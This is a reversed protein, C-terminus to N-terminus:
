RPQANTKAQAELLAEAEVTSARATPQYDFRGQRGISEIGFEALQEMADKARQSANNIYVPYANQLVHGGELKLEGKFLGNAQVHERFDKEAAEVSSSTDSSIVEVCFFQRGKRLGYFDSHMTIRKWAGDYSFNFMVPAIFGRDGEFSFFLSVLTVSQLKDDVNLGCLTQTKPIPVTSIVRETTYQSGGINIEFLDGVKRIEQIEKGLAFSIGRAELNNQAHEYLPAFGDFPRVMQTNTAPALPQFFRKIHTAVMAHEKIWGMRRQAFDLDIKSAKAGNFREMYNELGSRRLLYDGIWFRAFARAGNQQHHFLRAKAASLLIRAIVLPGAALIDEKVSIPYRTVKGQPNLRELSVEIPIYHDLLEPFHALLPSDDQFIFSGIDFTYEDINVNIHNGGPHDYEDAILINKVGQREIVSASVLGSIGAGLVIADFHFNSQTNM